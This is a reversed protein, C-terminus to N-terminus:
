GDRVPIQLDRAADGATNIFFGRTPEKATDVLNLQNGPLGPNMHLKTMEDPLNPDYEHITLDKTSPNYEYGIAMVQHNQTALTRLSLYGSEPICCGSRRRLRAKHKM